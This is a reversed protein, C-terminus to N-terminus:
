QGRTTRVARLGWRGSTGGVRTWHCGARTCHMWVVGAAVRAVALLRAPGVLSALLPEWVRDAWGVLTKLHWSM